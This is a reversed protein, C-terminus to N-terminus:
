AGGQSFPHSALTPPWPPFTKLGCSWSALPRAKGPQSPKHKQCIPGALGMGQRDQGSQGTGPALTVGPSRVTLVCALLDGPRPNWTAPDEPLRQLHHPCVPITPALRDTLVTPSVSGLSGWLATPLGPWCSPLSSPAPLFPPPTLFPCGPFSLSSLLSLM